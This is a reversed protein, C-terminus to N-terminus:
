RDEEGVVERGFVSSGTCMHANVYTYSCVTCIHMYTCTHAYINMITCTHAHVYMCIHMHVHSHAHANTCVHSTEPLDEGAYRSHRPQKGPPRAQTPSTARTQLLWCSPWQLAWQRQLQEWSWHVPSSSCLPSSFPSPPLHLCCM